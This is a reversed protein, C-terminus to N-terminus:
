SDSPFLECQKPAPKVSKRSTTLPNAYDCLSPDLSSIFRSAGNNQQRGFLTRSVSRTIVLENGARTMAVYLLRREEDLDTQVKKGEDPSIYPIIGDECGAVFVVRFELGKSAHITMLSVAEARPDLEEAEEKPDSKCSRQYPIGSSNFEEELTDGVANLRYLVAIDRFGVQVDERTKRGSDISFFSAGGIIEDIARVVFKAELTANPLTVMRIPAGGSNVATLRPVNGHHDLVQTAARVVTEQSRYNLTLSITKAQSFDKAFQFFFNRDAGRFGYIAQDPDGIAFLGRGEEGSLSRVMEYQAKNVDQFEDVLLHKTIGTVLEAAKDPYARLARVSQVLLDDLDLAQERQLLNEYADYARASESESITDDVSILSQKMLSVKRFLPPVQSPSLKLDAEKVAQRFLKLADDEQLIKKRAPGPVTDELVDLLRIGLQHFTGVWCRRAAHVPILSQLREKMEEAAKRTFTVATIEEPEAIGNKLLAAVRHTLTRTKGTGPGAQVLVPRDWIDAALQQAENLGHRGEEASDSGKRDSSKKKKRVTAKKRSKARPPVGLAIWSEQGGFHDHEGAAFIQVKGFEGDYGAQISIEGKRVRRIAEVIIDPAGAAIQDLSQSWLIDMEPGLKKLLETYATAVRKSQPGVDLAQAVIEILPLMRWFPAAREPFEGSTRDALEMVRNMVGVTVPNGCVPCKGGLAETEEPEMRTSCKRHGDVHYKGEEPFFEVTGIFGNTTHDMGGAFEASDLGDLTRCDRRYAGGGARIAERIEFYGPIGSFINAERGLKSPSHTDSNSVLTYKDLSGVRHNMEPDSSLGTELAFIHPALDEFCEEVSNFGSKSGLLSFWPTWVHAPILFSDESSELAIELLDRSDLGLIPRGDSKINGIRDLRARFRDMAELDPMFVLNHVKRTAGRKKYISSIEVNLMFRVDGPGFGGPIGPSEPLHEHKLRFLGGEVEELMEHIELSWEPHTLDGTALVRLGKLAAWRALERLNCDPSTARSFRSHIHLDAFYIM